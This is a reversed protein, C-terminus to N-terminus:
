FLITRQLFEWLDHFWVYGLAHRGCNVQVMAVAGPRPDTLQDREVSLRLRVVKGLEPDDFATEEISQVTEQYTRGPQNALAFEAPLSQGPAEAALREVARAV